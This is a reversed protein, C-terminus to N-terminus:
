TSTRAKGWGMHSGGEREDKETEVGEQPRWTDLPSSVILSAMCKCSGKMDRGNSIRNSILKPMCTRVIDSGTTRSPNHKIERTLWSHAHGFQSCGAIQWHLCRGAGRMSLCLTYESGLLRTAFEHDRSPRWQRNSLQLSQSPVHHRAGCRTDM